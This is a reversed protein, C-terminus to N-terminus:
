LNLADYQHATYVEGDLLFEAVHSSGSNNDFTVYIRKKSIYPKSLILPATLPAVQREFAEVEEGDIIMHWKTDVVWSNAIIRALAVNPKVPDYSWVRVGVEGATVTRRQYLSVFKWFPMPNAQQLQAIREMRKLRRNIALLTVTQLVKPDVRLNDEDSSM